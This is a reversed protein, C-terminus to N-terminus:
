VGNSNNNEAMKPVEALRSEGLVGHGTHWPHGPPSAYAPQPFTCIYSEHLEYPSVAQVTQVNRQPGKGMSHIYLGEVM